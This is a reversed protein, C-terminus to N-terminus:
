AAGRKVLEERLTHEIVTVARGTQFIDDLAPRMFSREPMNMRRVHARVLASSSTRRVHARVLSGNRAHQSVSQLGFAKRTHQSVQVLGRFGYEHVAGYPLNTGVDSWTQSLKYNVSQALKGTRRHLPHGGRLYQKQSRSVTEESLLGLIRRNIEPADDILRQFMARVQTDDYDVHYAMM